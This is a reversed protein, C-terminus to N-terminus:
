CTSLDAYPQNFVRRRILSLRSVDSVTLNVFRPLLDIMETLHLYENNWQPSSAKCNLVDVRHQFLADLLIHAVDFRFSIIAEWLRQRTISDITAGRAIATQVAESNGDFVDNRLIEPPAQAYSFSGVFLFMFISILQKM